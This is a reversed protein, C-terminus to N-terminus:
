AGDGDHDKEEPPLDATRGPVAVTEPRRAALMHQLARQRSHSLGGPHSSTSRQQERLRELTSRALGTRKPRSRLARLQRASWPAVEQDGSASARSWAADAAAHDGRTYATFGVRAAEEPSTRGVIVEWAGDPIRRAPGSVHWDAYAVIHDFPRFSPSRPRGIMRLLAIQPALERCAWALGEASQAATPIGADLYRPCLDRLDAEPIPRLMGARCWDVAAQLLAWGIPAAIRGADYARELAATDVLDEGIGRVFQEGSYLREADARERRSPHSPVQVQDAHEFLLRAAQGIQGETGLVDERRTLSVTAVVVMRGDGRELWDLLAQDFGTVDGLFRDLQDLWLVPPDPGRAFPPDGLISTLAKTCATPVILKSTPFVRRVAEFATRTKGAKSAGTVLAVGRRRLLEDLLHDVDRGVYPPAPDDELHKSPTVGVIGYPSVEAVTPVRGSRFTAVPLVSKTRAPPSRRRTM